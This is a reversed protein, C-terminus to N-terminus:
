AKSPQLDSLRIDNGLLTVYVPYEGNAFQMLRLLIFIDAQSYTLSDDKAPHVENFFITRGDVTCLIPFKANM